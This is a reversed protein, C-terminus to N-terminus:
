GAFAFATWLASLARASPSGLRKRMVCEERGRQGRRLLQTKGADEELATVRPASLAPNVSPTLAPASQAAPRIVRVPHGVQAAPKVPGEDPTTGNGNM